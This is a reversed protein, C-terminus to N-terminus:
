ATLIRMSRKKARCNVYQVFMRVEPLQRVILLTNRKPAVQGLIEGDRSFLVM